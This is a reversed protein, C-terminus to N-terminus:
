QVTKIRYFRAQNTPAGGTLTFDDVFTQTSDSDDPAADMELYIPRIIDNFVGNFSGNTDGDSYQVRYRSGGVSPWTLTIHGIASRSEGSIHLVSAANTPNTNAFYEQLNSQGDGDNDSNPDSIGYATEWSDPIQNANTDPPPAVNFNLTALTSTSSGDSASYVFHNFGRFGHTPVYTFTGTSADFNLILGRSPSSNTHFTLHDGNADFATLALNTVSDGMVTVLRNTVTPAVNSGSSFQWSPTTTSNGFSDNVVVYWEYPLNVQRNSWVLSAITGPPVNSITGLVAFPSVNPLEMKYDFFFEHNSATHYQDTHPSYTQVVVQNNMPSFTMLRMFGNGGNTWGQYDSVFTRITNGNFTDARSGGGTVHGSLMMFVNTNHKLANYIAAGQASFNVPTQPSGFYHTVLIARRNQNAQLIQNGWALVAPNASPDYEFYLVVFDMGGASFFDYHNDNNSGYHGGYYPKGSFHSIGFYQNYFITTGNPDNIPESDHNGVALGYPIGSALLTRSPNELRYMANTANRWETINSAGSSKLDGNDTIDGLHAVYAINQAMRNTVVWETQAIFMEKTGGNSEEAYYQTDPLVVIMFDEGAGTVAPRGLFSVTLNGPANNSVAVQLKPSVSRNQSNDLPSVLTASIAAPIFVFSAVAGSPTQLGPPNGPLDRSQIIWGDGDPEYSVINDQNQSTGSEPSIILVGTSPSHGPITLRWTGVSTNTVDFAPSIGSFLLRTGDGRFRGSVVTTNTKPIFAFAVPGQETLAADTSTNKVYVTWTGDTNAESLAYNRQNEGHTVLLVGDTQSHIGLSVLNVLSMGNGQDVFHTGLTLQLSGTFLNNSGGDTQSSNRALGSLWNTYPFFASGININFEAGVPANFVPIYYAGISEGTRHYNLATTCYNVGPYAADANNRGNEAVSSIIVGSNVDDNLNAGIQVNYDGRNSGPRIRFDNISVPTTVTVANTANSSDHQVVKISAAAVAHNAIQAYAVSRM